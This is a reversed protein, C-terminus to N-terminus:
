KFLSDVGQKLTFNRKNSIKKLNKVNLKTTITKENLIIKRNNPLKRNFLLIAKTLSIKEDYGINMIKFNFNKSNLIKIFYYQFHENYICQWQKKLHFFKFSYDKNLVKKKLNFIIGYKRKKSFIGPVRLCLDNDTNRSLIMDECKKKVKAYKSDFKIIKMNENLNIKKVNEYVSVSSMYIIPANFYKTMNKIMRINRKLNPNSKSDIACHIILSPSFKKSLKKILSTNELKFKKIKSFSSLKKFKIKKKTLAECINKGVVGSAGTILIKKLDYRKYAM